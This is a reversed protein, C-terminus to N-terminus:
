KLNGVLKNVESETLFHLDRFNSTGNGGTLFRYGAVTDTATQTVQIVIINEEQKTFPCFFTALKPMTMNYPKASPTKHLDYYILSTGNQTEEFTPLRGNVVPVKYWSIKDVPPFGKVNDPCYWGSNNTLGNEKKFAEQMALSTNIKQNRMTISDQKYKEEDAKQEDTGKCSALVLMALSAFLLTLKKM